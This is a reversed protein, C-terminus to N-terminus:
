SLSYHYYANRMPMMSQRTQLIRVFDMTMSCLELHILIGSNRDKEIAQASLRNLEDLSRFIDLLIHRNLLNEISVRTFIYIYIDRYM